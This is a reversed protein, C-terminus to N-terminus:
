LLRQKRYVGLAAARKGNYAGVGVGGQGAETEEGALVVGAGCLHDGGTVAWGWQSWRGKLTGPEWAWSSSSRHDGRLSADLGGPQPCSKPM